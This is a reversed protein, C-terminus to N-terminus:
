RTYLGLPRRRRSPTTFDIGLLSTINIGNTSTRVVDTMAVGFKGAATVSSDTVSVLSTWNAGSDTSSRVDIATGIARLSLVVEADVTMTFSFASGLATLAGGSYKYLQGNIQSAHNNSLLVMLAPNSALTGTSMRVYLRIGQTTNYAGKRVLTAQLDCNAGPSAANYAIYNGGPTPVGYGQDLAADVVINGGDSNTHSVYAGGTEPTHATLNEDSSTTLTDYLVVGM